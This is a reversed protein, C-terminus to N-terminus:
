DFFGESVAYDYLARQADALRVWTGGLPEELFAMMPQTTSRVLPIPADLHSAYVYGPKGDYDAIDLAQGLDPVFRRSALFESFTM